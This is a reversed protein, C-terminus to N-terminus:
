RKLNRKYGLIDNAVDLPMGEAIKKKLISEIGKISPKLDPLSNLITIYRLPQNLYTNCADDKLKQTLGAGKTSILKILPPFPSSLQSHATDIM